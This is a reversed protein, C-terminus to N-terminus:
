MGSGAYRRSGRRWTWAGLAHLAVLWVALVGCGFWFDRNGQKGLWIEIPGTVLWYPYLWRFSEALAPPMITVPVLVGAVFIVVFRAMVMLTWVVDLWFALLQLLWITQFYAYSAAIVLVFAQLAAIPRTPVPWVNPFCLSGLVVLALAIAGQLAVHEVFRAFFLRGLRVPMVLYKSLTGNFIQDALDLARENFMLRQLVAVLIVYRVLEDFRYSGLATVGDQRFLAWFVAIMVLPRGVNRFVERVLFGARFALQKKLEYGVARRVLRADRVFRARTALSSM